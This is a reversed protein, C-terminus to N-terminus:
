KDIGKEIMIGVQNDAEIIYSFITDLLINDDNVNIIGDNDVFVENVNFFNDNILRYNDSMSKIKYLLEKKKENIDLKKFSNIYDNSIDKLNDSM